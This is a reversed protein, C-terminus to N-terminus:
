KVGWKGAERAERADNVSVIGPFHRQGYGLTDARVRLKKGTKEGLKQKLQDTLFDGLAGSGSLQINGHSDKEKIQSEMMVKGDTNKIGESVAVLARGYKSHVASIDDAMRELSVPFEPVYVLHPGDTEDVRGLVSAATLFGAHRGMVINLKIGPLSRNDLNDGMFYSAVYKAASGFGPTHDNERLDNDITKPIHFVRLEYNERRAISNIIHSTEASDNGGIYFFYRIGYKKCIEFVKFCDEEKPKYRCSGLASSPTRAVVELNKKSEKKLNIIDEKLFGEVGNRMGYINRIESHKLAEMIIGVLSQNIVVTPGGSQGIVLNGKLAAM